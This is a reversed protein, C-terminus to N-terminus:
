GKQPIQRKVGTLEALRELGQCLIRACVHPDALEGERLTIVSCAKSLSNLRNLFIRHRGEWAEPEDDPLVAVATAPKKWMAERMARSEELVSLVECAGSDLSAKMGESPSELRFLFLVAESECTERVFLERYYTSATVGGRQVVLWQRGANRQCVYHYNWDSRVHRWQDPEDEGGGFLAYFGEKEQDNWDRLAQLLQSCNGLAQTPRLECLMDQRLSHCRPCANEVGTGIHGKAGSVREDGTLSRWDSLEYAPVASNKWSYFCGNQERVRFYLRRCHAMRRSDAATPLMRDRDALLVDGLPHRSFCEPCLYEGPLSVRMMETPAM